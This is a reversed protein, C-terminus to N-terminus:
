LVDVLRNDMDKQVAFYLQSEALAKVVELDNINLGHTKLNWKAVRREWAWLDIRGGILMKAATKLDATRYFNEWEVVM